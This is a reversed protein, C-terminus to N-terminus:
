IGLIKKVIVGLVKTPTTIGIIKHSWGLTITFNITISTSNSSNDIAIVVLTKSGSTGISTGSTYASGNLTASCSALGSESDTGVVPNVQAVQFNGDIIYNNDINNNALVLPRTM